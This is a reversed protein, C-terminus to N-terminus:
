CVALWRKQVQSNTSWIKDNTIQEFSLTKFFRFSHTLTHELNEIWIIENLKDLFIEINQTNTWYFSCVAFVFACLIIM